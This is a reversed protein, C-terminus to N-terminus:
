GHLASSASASPACTPPESRIEHLRPWHTRASRQLYTGAATWSLVEGPPADRPQHSIIALRRRSLAQFIGVGPCHTVSPSMKTFVRFGLPTVYHARHSSSQLNTYGNGMSTACQSWSSTCGGGDHACCPPGLFLSLSELVAHGVYSGALLVLLM